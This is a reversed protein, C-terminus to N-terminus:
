TYSYTRVGMNIISRMSDVSDALYSSNSSIKGLLATQLQQGTCISSLRSNAESVLSTSEEVIAGIRNVKSVVRDLDSSIEESLKKMSTTIVAGLRRTSDEIKTQIERHANNVANVIATTQMQRDLCALAEQITNARRTEVYYILLDTNKWDTVDIIASREMARITAEGALRAELFQSDYKKKYARKKELYAKRTNEEANDEPIQSILEVKKKKLIEMESYKKAVEDLCSDRHKFIYSIDECTSKIRFFYGFECFIFIGVAGIGVIVALSHSERFDSLMFDLMPIFSVDIAGYSVAIVFPGLVGFGISLLACLAFVMCKFIKGRARKKLSKYDFTRSRIM